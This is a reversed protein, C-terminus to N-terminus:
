TCYATLMSGATKKLIATWAILATAWVSESHTCETKLFCYKSNGSIDHYFIEKMWKSYIALPRERRITVVPNGPGEGGQDGKAAVLNLHNATHGIDFYM